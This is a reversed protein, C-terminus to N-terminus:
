LVILGNIGFKVIYRDWHRSRWPEIYLPARIWAHRTALGQLVDCVHQYPIHPPAQLLIHAHLNQLERSGEVFPVFGIRCEPRRVQRKFIKRETQIKLWRLANACIEKTLLTGSKAQQRFSVTIAHTPAQVQQACYELLAERMRLRSLDVTNM